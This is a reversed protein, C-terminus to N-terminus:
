RRLRGATMDISIVDPVPIGNPLVDLKCRMGPIELLRQILTGAIPPDVQFRGCAGDVAPQGFQCWDVIQVDLERAVAVVNKLAEEPILQPQGLEELIKASGSLRHNIDDM